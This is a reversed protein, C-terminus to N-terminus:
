NLCYQSMYYKIELTKDGGDGCGSESEGGEEIERERDTERETDREWMCM